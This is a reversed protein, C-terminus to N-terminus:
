DGGLEVPVLYETRVQFPASGPCAILAVDQGKGVWTRFRCAAMNYVVRDGPSLQALPKTMLARQENEPVSLPSPSATATTSPSAARGGTPTPGSRDVVQARGSPSDDSTGAFVIAAGATLLVGLLFAALILLRPDVRGRTAHRRETSSM